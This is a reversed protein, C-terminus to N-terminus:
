KAILLDLKVELQEVQYSFQIAERMLDRALSSRSDLECKNRAEISPWQAYGLYEGSESLHLRSGYSGCLDRMAKTVVAWSKEFQNEKGSKIKWRYLFIILDM